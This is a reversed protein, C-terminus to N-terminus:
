KQSYWELFFEKEIANKFKHTTMKYERQCERFYKKAKDITIGLGESIHNPYIANLMSFYKEIEDQRKNKAIM